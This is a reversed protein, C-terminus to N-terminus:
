KPYDTSYRIVSDLSKKSNNKFFLKIGTKKDFISFLRGGKHTGKNEEQIDELDLINKYDEFSNGGGPIKYRIVKIKDKENTVSLSYKFNALEYYHINGEILNAKGMQDEFKKMSSEFFCKKLQKPLNDAVISEIKNKENTHALNTLGFTIFIALVFRM